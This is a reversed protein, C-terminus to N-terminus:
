RWRADAPPIPKGSGVVPGLRFGLEEIAWEGCDRWIRAGPDNPRSKHTQRHACVYSPTGEEVHRNRSDQFYRLLRRVREVQSESDWDSVGSVECGVCYSNGRHGHAVLREMQHCLVVAKERPVYLHCPIGLGRNATMGAVATTHLMFCTTKEWCRSGYPQGRKKNAPYGFVKPDYRKRRPWETLDRFDVLGTGTEQCWAALREYPTEPEPTPTTEDAPPQLDIRTEIADIADWVSWRGRLLSLLSTLPLLPRVVM